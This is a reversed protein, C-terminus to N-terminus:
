GIIEIKPLPMIFKGGNKLYNEERIVLNARFHWPFVLFYDPKMARARDESIIPICTGPTFCGYKDPNVEAIYPLTDQNLGCFQLIVNGKTSAGYGLILKGASKLDALTNILKQRHEFVRLKFEIYPQPTTLGLSNEEALIANVEDRCEPYRSNKKAMIVLFSGGNTDNKEIYVPKFGVREAMWHIQKLSYFELHEHCITDYANVQLMSALYAQEFLWIGDETLQDYVQRMFELPSELDYFMAVSTIVKFQQTGLAKQIAEPSFFEPILQIHSPYFQKFKSGVPDIGVLNIASPPYMGLMSGDNSGIDLVFDAPRLDVISTIKEVLHHLHQLMSQNLGSRYGYNQGYLASGEFSHKLQVLGCAKPNHEDNCRVLRLPGAAIAQDKKSPFIGTLTQVGLDIVTVLDENGCIRCRQIESIM